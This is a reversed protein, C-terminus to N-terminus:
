EDGKGGQAPPQSPRSKLARIATACAEAEASSWVARRSKPKADFKKGYRASREECTRAARELADDVSAAAFVAEMEATDKKLRAVLERDPEPEVGTGDCAACPAIDHVTFPPDKKFIHGGRGECNACLFAGTSAAVDLVRRVCAEAQERAEGAAKLLLVRECEESDFPTAPNQITAREADRCARGYAALAGLISRPLRNKM